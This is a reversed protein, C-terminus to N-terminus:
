QRVKRPSEEAAERTFIGSNTYRSYKQAKEPQQREIVSEGELLIPNRNVPQCEAKKGPSRNQLEKADYALKFSGEAKKSYVAKAM